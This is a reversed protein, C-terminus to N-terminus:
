HGCHSEAGATSGVGTCVRGGGGAPLLTLLLQASARSHRPIALWVLLGLLAKATRAARCRAPFAPTINSQSPLFPPLPLLGTFLPSLSAVPSSTARLSYHSTLLAPGSSHFSIRASIFGRRETGRSTGGRTSARSGSINPSCDAPKQPCTVQFLSLSPLSSLLSRGGQGHGWLEQLMRGLPHSKSTPPQAWGVAM